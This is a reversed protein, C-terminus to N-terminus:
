IGFRSEQRVPTAPSIGLGSFLSFRASPMLLLPPFVPRNSNPEGEAQGPEAPQARLPPCLSPELARFPSRAPPLLGTGTNRETKTKTERKPEPGPLSPLFPLAHNGRDTTREGANWHIREDLTPRHGMLSLLDVKIRTGWRRDIMVIMGNRSQM